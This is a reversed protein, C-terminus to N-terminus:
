LHLPLSPPSFFSLINHGPTTMFYALLRCVVFDLVSEARQFTIICISFIKFCLFLRWIKELYYINGHFLDENCWANHVSIYTILLLLMLAIICILILNFIIQLPLSHLKLNPILKMARIQTNHLIIAM